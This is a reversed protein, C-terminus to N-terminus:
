AGASLVGVAAWADAVAKKEAELLDPMQRAIDITLNAFIEFSTEDTMRSDRLATYWVTGTKEWAYGGIAAAALYFARNPIGSNIHVGGNDEWTTVYNDMHAPQPDKGLIPDDYATGPEKLSRMARGKVNPGFLGAGILWDAQDVTQRLVWQKVLSGWVDSLHENIAGAQFTYALRSEDQTVGHGLEHAIVDLAITFRKFYEGDGDGFIMREGDWMANNFNRGYHVTARLPMGEDDISNRKYIRHFFDFTQGLGDYAEDVALDNTPGAGEQRVLTGPLTEENGASSIIRQKVQVVPRKIRGFPVRVALQTRYQRITTGVGLTHAAEAREADSGHMVISRLMYPPVVCFISHRHPYRCM